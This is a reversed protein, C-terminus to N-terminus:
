ATVKAVDDQNDAGVGLEVLRRTPAHVIKLQEGGDRTGFSNNGLPDLGFEEYYAATEVVNPVGMVVRTLRHLSM